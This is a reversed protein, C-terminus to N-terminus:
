GGTPPSSLQVPVGLVPGIRRRIVSWAPADLSRAGGLMAARSVGPQAKARISSVECNWWYSIDIVAQISDVPIFKPFPDRFYCSHSQFSKLSTPHLRDPLDEWRCCASTVHCRSATNHPLELGVLSLFFRPVGSSM